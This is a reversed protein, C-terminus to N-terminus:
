FDDEFAYGENAPPPYAAGQDFYGQTEPYPSYGQANYGEEMYPDYGDENYVGAPMGEQFYQHVGADGTGAKEAASDKLFKIFFGLLVSFIVFLISCIILLTVAKQSRGILQVDSLAKGSLDPSPTRKVQPWDLFPSRKGALGGYCREKTSCFPVPLSSQGDRRKDCWACDRLKSCTIADKNRACPDASYCVSHTVPKHDRLKVPVENLTPEPMSACIPARLVSVIVSVIVSNIIAM